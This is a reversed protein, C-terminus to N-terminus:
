DARAAPRTAPTAPVLLTVRVRRIAEDAGFHPTLARVLREKDDATGVTGNLGPMGTSAYEYGDITVRRYRAPDADLVTRMVASEDEFQRRHGSERLCMVIIPLIVIVFALGGIVALSLIGNGFAYGIRRSIGPPASRLYNLKEVM